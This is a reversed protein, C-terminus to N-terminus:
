EEGEKKKVEEKKDEDSSEKKFKGTLTFSFPVSVWCRVPQGQQLAPTFQLNMVKSSVEDRFVDPGSFGGIQVVSGDPGVLVKVTVKGEIGSSRAIEPYRMSGKVQSLNVAVPPKDVEFQQYTKTKEKKEEKEVKEETKKVDVLVKGTEKNPDVNESGESSVFAKIKETEEVKKITELDAKEKAVPEPTLAALDKLAEPQQIEVDPPPPAEEEQNETEQTQIDKLEIDRKIQLQKEMQIREIYLSFVYSAVLFIHIIVAVILGRTIFKKYFKKLEPAGYQMRSELPEVFGATQKNETTM